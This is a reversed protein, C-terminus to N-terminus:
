HHKYWGTKKIDPWSTTQHCKFCQNVQAHPEGAVKQSIMKFHMMYHSPPAQHCQMCDMSSSSPHRFEPLNWTSASHCQACDNGFLNFHRDDNQHCAICNLSREQRSLDPHGQPLIENDELYQLLATGDSDASQTDELERLGIKAIAEHDMNSIRADRGRHEIHCEKCSSINAHFSTPQRKLVFENNAHCTICKAPEVGKVSTHCAACNNNLFAHASSLEGPSAMGQWTSVSLPSEVVRLAKNPWFILLAIFFIIVVSIFAILKGRM